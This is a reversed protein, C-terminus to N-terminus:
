NQENKWIAFTFLKKLRPAEDLHERRRLLFSKLLLYIEQLYFKLM